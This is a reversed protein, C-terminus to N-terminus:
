RGAHKCQTGAVEEALLQWFNQRQVFLMRAHEESEAMILFVHLKVAM